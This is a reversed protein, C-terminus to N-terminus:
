AVVNIVNVAVGVLIVTAVAILIKLVMIAVSMVVIAIVCATSIHVMRVGILCVVVTVIRVRGNVLVRVRPDMALVMSAILRALRLRLRRIPHHIPIAEEEVVVVVMVIVLHVQVQDEELRRRDLIGGVKTSTM